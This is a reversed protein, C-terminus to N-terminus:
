TSVKENKYAFFEVYCNKGYKEQAKIQAGIFSFSVVYDIFRCNKIVRWLMNM